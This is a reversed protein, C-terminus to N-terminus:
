NPEKIVALDLGPSRDNHGTVLGYIERAPRLRVSSLDTGAVSSATLRVWTWQGSDVAIDSALATFFGRMLCEGTLVALHVAGFYRLDNLNKWHGVIHRGVLEAEIENLFPADEAGETRPPPEGNSARLRRKSLSTLKAVDAHHRPEGHSGFQYSTAWYGDLKSASFSPGVSALLSELPAAAHLVTTVTTLFAPVRTETVLDFVTPTLPQQLDKNLTRLLRRIGGVGASDGQIVQTSRLPPPVDDQEIGFTIPVVRGKQQLALAVGAAAGAEWLVWSTHVSNPTLLVFTRDMTTAHEKIWALWDDGPPIGGGAADDSSYSAQIRDGFLDDLLRTLAEAIPRDRHSHSLFINM